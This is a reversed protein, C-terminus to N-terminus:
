EGRNFGCNASQMKYDFVFRLNKRCHSQLTSGSKSVCHGATLILDPGVLAGSCFSNTPQTRFRQGPCLNWYEGLSETKKLRVKSLAIFLEKRDFIAVTADSQMKLQSNPAEDAEIRGDEGRIVAHGAFPLVLFLASLGLLAPGGTLSFLDGQDKIKSPV